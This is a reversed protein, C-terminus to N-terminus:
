SRRWRRVTWGTPPGCREQALQRRVAQESIKKGTLFRAAPGSSQQLMALLLHSTDARDCGLGGALQVAEDLLRGAERSFGRYRNNSFGDFLGM